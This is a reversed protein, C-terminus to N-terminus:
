RARRRRDSGKKDKAKGGTYGAGVVEIWVGGGGERGIPHFRRLPLTNKEKKKEKDNSLHFKYFSLDTKNKIQIIIKIKIKRSEHKTQLSYHSFYIYLTTIPPQIFLFVIYNSSLNYYNNKRKLKSKWNLFNWFDYRYKGLNIWGLMIAKVARDVNRWAM